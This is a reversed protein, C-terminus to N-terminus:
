LDSGSTYTHVPNQSSDKPSGDGFDWEYVPTSQNLAFQSLWGTILIIGLFAVIPHKKM